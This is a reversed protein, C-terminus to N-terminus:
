TMQILMQGQWVLFSHYKNLFYLQSQLRSHVCWVTGDSEEDPGMKGTEWIIYSKGWSGYHEMFGWPSGVASNSNNHPFGSTTDTDAHTKHVLQIMYLQPLKHQSPENNIHTYILSYFLSLSAPLIPLFEPVSLSASLFLPPSLTQWNEWHTQCGRRRQDSTSRTTPTIVHLGPCLTDGRQRIQFVAVARGVVPVPRRDQLVTSPILASLLCLWDLVTWSWHYSYHNQFTNTCKNFVLFQFKENALTNLVKQQPVIFQPLHM